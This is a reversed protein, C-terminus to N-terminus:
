ANTKVRTRSWIYFGAVLATGLAAASQVKWDDSSKMVDQMLWACVGSFWAESTKWGDKM